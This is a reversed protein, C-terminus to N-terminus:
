NAVKQCNDLESRCARAASVYHWYTTQILEPVLVSPIAISKVLIKMM